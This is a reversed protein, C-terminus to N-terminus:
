RAAKKLVYGDMTIIPNIKELILDNNLFHGVGGFFFFFFFFFFIMIQGQKNMFFLNVFPSLSKSQFAYINILDFRHTLSLAHVLILAPYPDSITHVHLRPWISIM